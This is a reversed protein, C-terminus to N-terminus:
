NCFIRIIRILKLFNDNGYNLIDTNPPFDVKIIFISTISEIPTHITMDPQSFFKTWKQRVLFFTSFKKEVLYSLEYVLRYGKDLKTSFHQKWIKKSHYRGLFLKFVTKFYTTKFSTQFVM